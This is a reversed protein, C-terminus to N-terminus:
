RRSEGGADVAEHQRQRGDGVVIELPINERWSRPSGSRSTTRTAGPLGRADPRPRLARRRRTITATIQVVEVDVTELYEVAKTTITKKIRSGDALLVSALIVHEAVKPGADWACEFPPREVTCVAKGDATLSVSQVVTGPPEIRIRIPMPGSAYGDEVPSDFFIM